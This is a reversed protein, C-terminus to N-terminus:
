SALIVDENFICRMAASAWRGGAAVIELVAAIYNEGHATYRVPRGYQWLTVTWGRGDQYNLTVFHGTYTQPCFLAPQM